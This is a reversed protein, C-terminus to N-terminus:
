GTEELQQWLLPFDTKNLLAHHLEQRGAEALQRANRESDKPRGRPRQGLSASDWRATDTGNALAARFKEQAAAEVALRLRNQEARLAATPRGPQRRRVGPGSTNTPTSGHSIPPINPGNSEVLQDMLKRQGDAKAHKEKLHKILRNDRQIMETLGLIVKDYQLIKRSLCQMAYEAKGVSSLRAIYAALSQSIDEDVLIQALRAKESQNNEDWLAALDVSEMNSGRLNDGLYLELIQNNDLRPSLAPGPIPNLKPANTPMTLPRSDSRPFNSSFNTSSTNPQVTPFNITAREPNFDISDSDSEDM